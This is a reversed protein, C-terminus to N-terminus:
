GTPGCLDKLNEQASIRSEIEAELKREIEAKAQQIATLQSEIQSVKRSESKLHEEAAVIVREYAETKQRLQQEVAIKAEAEAGYKKRLKEKEDTEAVLTEELQTIREEYVKTQSNM